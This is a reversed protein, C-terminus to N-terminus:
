TLLVSALDQLIEALNRSSTLEGPFKTTATWDSPQTQSKAVGHDTARWGERDRVIEWLKSLSMDMSDPIDDLCRIRQQDRRKRGEIEQLLPHFHFNSLWTQSKAVGHVDMSNELGSYLLPYGKGEGPSRGLGPTLGLDGANCTSEKGASSCLFGLFVPTSLRDRRWPIKGVWSNFGPRRCQLCIRWWRLQWPLRLRTPITLTISIMTTSFTLPLIYM